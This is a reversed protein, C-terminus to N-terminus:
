PRVGDGALLAIRPAQAWDFHAVGKPGLRELMARLGRAQAALGGIDVGTDLGQGRELKPLAKGLLAVAGRHNGGRLHHLAVALQIIGQYLSRAPGRERLWLAELTEHCAFYEGRNFQEVARALEPSMVKSGGESPAGM